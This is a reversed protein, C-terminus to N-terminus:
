HAWLIWVVVFAVILGAVIGFYIFNQTIWDWLQALKDPQQESGKKREQPDYPYQASFGVGREQTTLSSELRSLVRTNEAIQQRLQRLEAQFKQLHDAEKNHEIEWKGRLNRVAAKEEQLQQQFSTSHQIQTSLKSETETLQQTLKVHLKAAFGGREVEERLLSDPTVFQLRGLSRASATVAADTSLMVRSFQSFPLGMQIWDFFWGLHPAHNVSSLDLYARPLDSVSLGGESVLATLSQNLRKGEADPWQIQERIASLRKVFQGNSMAHQNVQDALLPLLHVIADGSAAKDVLWIGAGYYGGDRSGGLELASRYYGIWTLVSRDVVRRTVFYLGQQKRLEIESTSIGIWDDVPQFPLSGFTAVELGPTVGILSIALM